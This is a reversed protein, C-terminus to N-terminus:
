FPGFFNQGNQGYLSSIVQSNRGYMKSGKRRYFPARIYPGRGLAALDQRVLDLIEALKSRPMKITTMAHRIYVIRAMGDGAWTTYVLSSLAEQVCGDRDPARGGLAIVRIDQTKAPLRRPYSGLTM